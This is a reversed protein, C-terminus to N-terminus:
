SSTSFKPARPTMWRLCPEPLPALRRRIRNSRRVILRFRAAASDPTAPEAATSYQSSNRSNKSPSMSLSGATSPPPRNQKSSRPPPYYDSLSISARFAQPPPKKPLTRKWSPPSVMPRSVISLWLKSICLSLIRFSIPIPISIWLVSLPSLILYPFLSLTSSSTLGIVDRKGNKPKRKM